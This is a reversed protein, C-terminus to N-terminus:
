PGLRIRSRRLRENILADFATDRRRGTQVYMTIISSLHTDDLERYPTVRGDASRWVQDRAVYRYVLVICKSLLKVLFYGFKQRKNM